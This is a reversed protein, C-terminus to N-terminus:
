GEFSKRYIRFTIILLELVGYNQTYSYMYSIYTSHLNDRFVIDSLLKTRCLSCYYILFINSNGYELVRFYCELKFYNKKDKICVMYKQILSLQFQLDHVEVLDQSRIPHTLLLQFKKVLRLSDEESLFCAEKRTLAAETLFSM